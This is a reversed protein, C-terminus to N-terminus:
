FLLFIHAIANKHSRVFRFTFKAENIQQQQENKDNLHCIWSSKNHADM